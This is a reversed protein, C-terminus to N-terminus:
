LSVMPLSNKGARLGSLVEYQHNLLNGLEIERLQFTWDGSTKVYVISRKGTWLVASRDILLGETKRASVSGKVFMDPKFIGKNNKLEVRVEVVRTDPNVKPSIFSIPAEFTENSGNRKFNVLQGISLENLDKEYVDFVVWIYSLDTIEMLTGGEMLHDGTNVFKQTVVGDFEAM